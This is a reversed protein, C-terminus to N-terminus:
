GAAPDVLSSEPGAEATDDIIQRPLVAGQKGRPLLELLCDIVPVQGAAPLIM